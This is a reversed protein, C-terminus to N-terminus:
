LSFGRGCAAAVFFQAHRALHRGSLSVSMSSLVLAPGATLMYKCHRSVNNRGRTFATGDATVVCVHRKATGSQKVHLPNSQDVTGAYTMATETVSQSLDPSRPKFASVLM